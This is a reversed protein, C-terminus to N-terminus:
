DILKGDYLDDGEVVVEDYLELTAGYVLEDGPEESCIVYDEGSYIIFVQKFLIQSGYKVYVGQVKIEKEQENGADDTITAEVYDDHLAKKSIKLGEYTNLQIEVAENRIQTLAPNMYNCELVVVAKEENSFQNVSVVKVPMAESTAYPIKLSITGSNHNIAVAEENTIPCAIYWNVGNIVKGVYKEENVDQRKVDNLDSCKIQSMDDVSFAKEYGDITSVFYGSNETKIEGISDHFSNEISEKESELEAIKDDFNKQDGTMTQKRYIASLLEKEVSSIDSFERKNVCEIFSELRQDLRNNVSDLGVNSSGMVSNLQNLEELEEDIECLRQYNVADTEESYITAITGDATIKEGNSVQYVLVGNSTNRIYEEDRIVFGTTSITDYATGKYTVETVIGDSGMFNTTVFIFVIFMLMLAVTVGVVIRSTLKRTAARQEDTRKNIRKKKTQTHIHKNSM